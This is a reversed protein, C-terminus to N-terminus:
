RFKQLTGLLAGFMRRNRKRMGGDEEAAGDAPRKSGGAGAPVSGGDGAARGREDGEGQLDHCHLLARM